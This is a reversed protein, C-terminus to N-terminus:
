RRQFSCASASWASDSPVVQHDAALESSLNACRGRRKRRVNGPGKGDAFGVETEIGVPNEKFLAAVFVCAALYSGALTPHSDDRDHLVPQDHERLFRQWAVGVPVVTPRLERGIDAYAETIAKQSEARQATGLDHLSGDKIGRGSRRTM